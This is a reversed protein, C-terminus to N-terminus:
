KCQVALNYSPLSSGTIFSPVILKFCNQLGKFVVGLGCLFCEREFLMTSPLM